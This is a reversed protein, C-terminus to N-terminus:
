PSTPSATPLSSNWPPLTSPATTSSTLTPHRPNPPLPTGSGASGALRHAAAPVQHPRHPHQPRLTKPPLRRRRSRPRRPHRRPPHPRHADPHAHLAPCRSPRPHHCLRRRRPAHLRARHRLHPRPRVPARRPSLRPRRRWRVRPPHPFRRGPPQLAPGPRPTRRRRHPRHTPISTSRDHNLARNESHIQLSNCLVCLFLSSM